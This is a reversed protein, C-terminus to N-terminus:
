SNNKPSESHNSQSYKFEGIAKQMRNKLEACVDHNVNFLSATTALLAGHAIYLAEKSWNLEHAIIGTFPMHHLESAPGYAMEYLNLRGVEEAMQKLSKSTWRRQVSGKANTFKQKNQDYEAEAQKMLEPSVRGPFYKEVTQMHRLAEVSGFQLYDHVESPNKELYESIISIEFMGRAIKMAGAGRNNGVLLLVDLMSESCLKTLATQVQVLEQKSDTAAILDAAIARLDEIALFASEYTKFISDWVPPNGFIARREEM